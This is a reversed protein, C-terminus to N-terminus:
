EKVYKIVVNSTSSAVKIIYIGSPVTSLSIENYGNHVNAPAINLAGGTTSYINLVEDGVANPVILTGDVIYANKNTDVGEVGLSASYIFQKPTAYETKSAVTASSLNYSYLARVYYEEGDKLFGSPLKIESLPDSEFQFDNLNKAYSFRSPFSQSASIELRTFLIGEQPAIIIRSNSYLTSGDIAPTVFVPPAPVIDLTTFCVVDTYKSYEGNTAKVRVYYKTGGSLTLQPITYEAESVTATKVINTMTFDKAVEVTFSVGESAGNWKILPTLSQSVSNNLPASIASPVLNFSSVDSYTDRCNVARSLIRWYYIGAKLNRIKVLSQVTLDTETRSVIKTMAKDEAIEVVYQQATCNWSLLSTDFMKAGDAPMVLTAKPADALTAGVFAASYENGYRDLYAVAYKYGAQMNKPVDFTGNYSVGILYEPQKSFTSEAVSSPIAYITYRMNNITTCTVKGDSYAVNAPIGPNSAPMWSVVPTLSKSSFANVKLYHFLRRIKRNVIVAANNLTKMNFYVTGPAENECYNRTLNIEDTYESFDPLEKQTPISQSVYLHKNFHNAVYSWWETLADFDNAGKIPWYIQPSIFDISGESLWALPDSSIQNYQWDSGPSPRVGFEEASAGAVGAPSIGFRVWPKTEKVTQNVRRVMRNINDRRWDPQSRKGGAAVYADYYKADVDLALGGANYFYDDYILGDTDYKTIIDKCVDVIRQEVEPLAPNLITQKPSSLLWDPHTNVYDKECETWSDTSNRYRYPNVWAYVEIGREHAASILYEFPDFVPAVGRQPSVTQSWPEYASNYMADSFTRVHYYVTTFNNVVLTDLMNNCIKKLQTANSSTIVNAPWDGVYPSIWVARHERKPQANVCLPIILLSLLISYILKKM